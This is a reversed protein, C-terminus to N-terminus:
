EGASASKRDEEELQKRFSNQFDEILWTMLEKATMSTKLESRTWCGSTPEIKKTM